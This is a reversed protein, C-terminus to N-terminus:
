PFYQEDLRTVLGNRRTLWFPVGYASEKKAFAAFFGALTVPIQTCLGNTRTATACGSRAAPPVATLLFGAPAAATVRANPALKLVVAQKSPNREYHDNPVSEGPPVAGDQEAALQAARGSLTQAPDFTITRTGADTKTVYGFDQGGAKRESPSQPTPPRPAQAGWGGCGVLALVPVLLVGHGIRM